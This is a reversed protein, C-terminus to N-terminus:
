FRADNRFFPLLVPGQSRDSTLHDRSGWCLHDERVIINGIGGGVYDTGGSRDGVTRMRLQVLDFFAPLKISLEICCLAPARAATGPITNVHLGHM